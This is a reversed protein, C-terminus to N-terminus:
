ETNWKDILSHINPPYLTKLDKRKVLWELHKEFDIRLLADIEDNQNKLVEDSSYVFDILENRQKATTEICEFKWDFRRKIAYMAALVTLLVGIDIWGFLDMNM